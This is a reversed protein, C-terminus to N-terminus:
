NGGGNWVTLVGDVLTFIRIMANSTITASSISDIYTGDVLYADRYANEVVPVAGGTYGENYDSDYTQTTIIEMSDVKDLAVNLTFSITIAKGGFAKTEITIERLEEDFETIYTNLDIFDTSPLNNKFLDKYTQDPDVGSIKEVFNFENDFYAVLENNEPGFTINVIYPKALFTSKDYNREVSNITYITDPIEFGYDRAYLERAYKIGTDFAISSYTAGAVTDVSFAVDDLPKDLFQKYFTNTLTNFYSPTENNSIVMLDIIANTELDIAYAVQVGDFRGITSVIYIVAIEEDDENFIKYSSILEPNYGEEDTDPLAYEIDLQDYDAKVVKEGDGVLYLLSNNFEVIEQEEQHVDIQKTMYRSFFGGLVFVVVFIASLLLITLNNKFFNKM